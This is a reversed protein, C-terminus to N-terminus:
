RHSEGKIQGTIEMREKKELIYVAVLAAIVILVVVIVVAVVIGYDGSEASQSIVKSHLCILSLTIFKKVTVNSLKFCLYIICHLANCKM